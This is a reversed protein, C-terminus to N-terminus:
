IQEKTYVKKPNQLLLKLIEFEKATVGAAMGGQCLGDEINMDTYHSVAENLRDTEQDELVEMKGKLM